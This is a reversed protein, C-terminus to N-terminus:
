SRQRSDDDGVSLARPPNPQTPHTLRASQGTGDRGAGAGSSRRRARAREARGSGGTTVLRLWETGGVQSVEPWQMSAAEPEAGTAEPERATERMTDTDGYCNTVVLFSAPRPRTTIARPNGITKV